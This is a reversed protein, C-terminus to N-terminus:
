GVLDSLINLQVSFKHTCAISGNTSQFAASLDWGSPSEFGFPAAVGSGVVEGDYAFSDGGMYLNMANMIFPGLETGDRDEVSMPAFMEAEDVDGFSRDGWMGSNQLFRVDHGHGGANGGFTDTWWVATGILISPEQIYLRRRRSTTWRKYLPGFPRNAYWLGEAGPTTTIRDQEVVQHRRFEDEVTIGGPVDASLMGGMVQPDYPTLVGQELLVPHPLHSLRRPDTSHAALYEAYTQETKTLLYMSEILASLSSTVSPDPDNIGGTLMGNGAMSRIYEGVEPPQDLNQANSGLDETNAIEYWTQAIEHTGISVYPMYQAGFEGAWPRAVGQFGISGLGQNPETATSFPLAMGANEPQGEEEFDEASATFIEKFWSPYASLPVVWLGLEVEIIPAEILNLLSSFWTEGHLSFSDLTEGPRLPHAMFPYLRREGVRSLGAWHKPRRMGRAPLPAVNINQEAGAM